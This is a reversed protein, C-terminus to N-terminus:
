KGYYPNTTQLAPDYATSDYPACGTEAALLSSAYNNFLVQGYHIDDWYDIINNQIVAANNTGWYNGTAVVDGYGKNDVYIQSISQFNTRSISVSYIDWPNIRIATAFNKLTSNNVTISTVNLGITNIQPILGSRGISSCTIRSNRTMAFPTQALTINTYKVDATMSPIHLVGHTFETNGVILSGYNYDYNHNNGNPIITTMNIKNLTSDRIIILSQMYRHIIITGLNFNTEFLCALYFINIFGRAQDFPVISQFM